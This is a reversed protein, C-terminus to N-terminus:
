MRVSKFYASFTTYGAKELLIDTVTTHLIPSKATRWYGKRTSAFKFATNHDNGLKRLMANLNERSLIQELLKDGRSNTNTNNNETIRKDTLAGAYGKHEASDRQPCGKSCCPIRSEKTGVKTVKM